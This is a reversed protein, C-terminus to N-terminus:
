RIEVQHPFKRQTLPGPTEVGEHRLAGDNRLRWHLQGHGVDIAIGEGRRAAAQDTFGGTSAASTSPANGLPGRRLTSPMRWRSAAASSTRIIRRAIV